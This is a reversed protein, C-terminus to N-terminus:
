TAAVTMGVEDSGWPDSGMEFEGAFGVHYQRGFNGTNVRLLVLARDMLNKDISLIFRSWLM